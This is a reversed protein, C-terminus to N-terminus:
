IDSNLSKFDVREAYLRQKISSMMQDIRKLEYKLAIEKQGDESAAWTMETRKDSLSKTPKLTLIMETSDTSNEIDQGYEQIILWKQPKKLSIKKLMENYYSGWGALKTLYGALELPNDCVKLQETIEDIPDPM